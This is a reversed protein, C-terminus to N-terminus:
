AGKLKLAATGSLIEFQARDVVNHCQPCVVAKAPITTTCFICDKTEVKEEIPTVWERNVGMASAFIREMNGIARHRKNKSWEDDANRILETAWFTQAARATDVARKHKAIVEERSLRGPLAIVGPIRDPLSTYVSAQIFDSVLSQALKYGDHSTKISPRGHGVYVYEVADDVHLISFGDNKTFDGAPITYDGPSIGPVRRTVEVPYWSVITGESM